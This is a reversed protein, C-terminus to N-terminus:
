SEQERTADLAPRLPHGDPIRVHDPYALPHLVTRAERINNLPPEFVASSTPGLDKAYDYGLKEFGEAFVRGDNLARFGINLTIWGAPDVGVAVVSRLEPWVAGDPYDLEPPWLRGKQVPYFDLAHEATMLESDLVRAARMRELGESRAREEREFTQRRREVLLVIGGGILAGLLAAAIGALGLVVEANESLWSAALPVGCCGDRVAPRAGELPRWM